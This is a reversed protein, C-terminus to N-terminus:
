WRFCFNKEEGCSESQSHPEGVRRDLTYRVFRGPTFGVMLGGGGRAGLNRLSGGWSKVHMKM